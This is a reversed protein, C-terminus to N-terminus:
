TIIKNSLISQIKSLSEIIEIVDGQTLIIQKSKEHESFAPQNKEISPSETDLLEKDKVIYYERPLDSGPTFLSCYYEFFKQKDVKGNHLKNIDAYYEEFQVKNICDEVKKGLFVRLSIENIIYGKSSVNRAKLRGDQILRRVSSVSLKLKEAVQKINYSESM